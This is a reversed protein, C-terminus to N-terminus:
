IGMNANNWIRVTLAGTITDPAAAAQNTLVILLGTLFGPITSLLTKVVTFQGAAPALVSAAFYAEIPAAPLRIPPGFKQGLSDATVFTDVSFIGGAGALAIVNYQLTGYPKM